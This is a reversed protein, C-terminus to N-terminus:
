TIFPVQDFAQVALMPVPHENQPYINVYGTYHFHNELPRRTHTRTPPCHGTRGTHWVKNYIHVYIIYVYIHTHHYQQVRKDICVIQKVCQRGNTQQAHGHRQTCRPPGRVTTM